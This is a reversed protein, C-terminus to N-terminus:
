STEEQHRLIFAHLVKVAEFFRECEREDGLKHGYRLEDKRWLKIITIWANRLTNTRDLEFANRFCLPTAEYLRWLNHLDAGQVGQNFVATDKLNNKHEGYCILAKLSCEIAYGALYIAGNWRASQQLFEADKRRHRSAGLQVRCDYTDHHALVAIRGREWNM